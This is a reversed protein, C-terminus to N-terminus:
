TLFNARGLSLNGSTRMKEDEVVVVVIGAGGIAEGIGEIPARRTSRCDSCDWIRGVV